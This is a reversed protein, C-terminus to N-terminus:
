RWSVRVDNWLAVQSNEIRFSLLIIIGKTLLKATIDAKFSLLDYYKNNSWVEYYNERIEGQSLIGFVLVNLM